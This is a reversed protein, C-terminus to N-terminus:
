AADDAQAARLGIQQSGDAANPEASCERKWSARKPKWPATSKCRGKGGQSPEDEQRGLSHRDAWLETGLGAKERDARM